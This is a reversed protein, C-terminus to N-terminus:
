RGKVRKLFMFVRSRWAKCNVVAKKLAISRIHLLPKTFNFNFVNSNNTAVSSDM